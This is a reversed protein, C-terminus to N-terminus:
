KPFQQRRILNYCLYSMGIVKPGIPNMARYRGFRKCWLTNSFMIPIFRSDSICPFWAPDLHGTNRPPWLCLDVEKMFLLRKVHVINMCNFSYFAAGSWALFNSCVSRIQFKVITTNGNRIVYKKGKVRVINVMVAPLKLSYQRHIDVNKYKIFNSFPRKRHAM